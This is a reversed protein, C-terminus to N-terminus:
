SFYDFDGDKIIEKLHTIRYESIIKIKRGQFM